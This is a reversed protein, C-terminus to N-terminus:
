DDSLSDTHDSLWQIIDDSEYLPKGDIFLCPVQGKGGERILIEKGAPDNQINRMPVSKHIRTLYTLVKQCYPCWPSYFLMLEIKEQTLQTQPPASYARAEICFSSAVCLILFPLLNM